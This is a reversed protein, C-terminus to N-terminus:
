ELALNLIEQTYIQPQDFMKAFDSGFSFVNFYSGAPLSRVFLKLAEKAVSIPKGGMSGSWDIVFTFEKAEFEFDPQREVRNTQDVDLADGSFQDKSNQLDAIFSFM